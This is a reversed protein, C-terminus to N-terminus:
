PNFKDEWRLGEWGCKNCIYRRADFVSFTLHHILHDSLNRKIRSLPKSCDPCANTCNRDVKKKGIRLRKFLFLTM